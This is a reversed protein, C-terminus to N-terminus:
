RYHTNSIDAEAATTAARDAYEAIREEASRTRPSVINHMKFGTRGTMQLVREMRATRPWM